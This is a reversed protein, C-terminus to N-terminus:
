RLREPETPTAIHQRFTGHFGWPIHHDLWATALPGRELDRADLVVLQSLDEDLHHNLALLWGDDEAADPHRPIFLPEGVSSPGLDCATTKGTRTDVKVLSNFLRAPGGKGAFYTYRHERTGRRWDFQPFEGSRDTLQTEIIRGNRTIRYRLLTSDPYEPIGRDTRNVMGTMHRLKAWDTELRPLEIVVDDGDDYANTFHVHLLAEHELVRVRGGNRPVLVFRTGKHRKFELADVFSTTSLAIRTIDPLIPDLVFVMYKETLAFDHNWPLDLMPVTALKTLRGRRDVRFTRLRPTPLVDLGFNYMDGTAPDWKPHASFAGLYGLRGGFDTIGITDLTEPDIRHPNGIEWLALLEGACNVINTNAVNAPLRGVNAWFGGPIQDGVGRFRITNSGRGHEFHRTRVYRNRFRVSRGDLIFQSIMGDGDFINHLLTRGVQYKGPGIRYLTGTLEAPLTGDIRTVRYDHEELLPATVQQYPTASPGPRTTTM